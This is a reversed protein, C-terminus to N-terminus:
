TLLEKHNARYSTSRKRSSSDNRHEKVFCNRFCSNITRTDAQRCGDTRLCCLSEGSPPEHIKKNKSNRSVNITVNRTQYFDFFSYCIIKNRSRLKMIRRQSHDKYEYNRCVINQADYAGLSLFCSTYNTLLTEAAYRLLEKLVCSHSFTVNSTSKV